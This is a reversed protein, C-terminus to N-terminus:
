QELVSYELTLIKYARKDIPWFELHENDTRYLSKFIPFTISGWQATQTGLLNM